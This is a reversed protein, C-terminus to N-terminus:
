IELMSTISMINFEYTAIYHWIKKYLLSKEKRKQIYYETIFISGWTVIDYQWTNKFM